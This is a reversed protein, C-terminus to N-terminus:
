VLKRILGEQTTSAVLEGNRSFIRGICYARGDGAKISEVEYLMWDEIGQDSHFWMAHDLSAIKMPTTFFSLNHPLLASVLLNFDSVYALLSRQLGKDSPIAGNPKFWLHQKPSRIGPNFPDFYELPHYIFPGRDSISGVAEIDLKKAFDSFIQSFPQLREPEVVNPMPTQHAIGEEPKHFSASMLFIVKDNQSALVRMVDFSKGIKIPEVVYKIPLDNNGPHLFYGHLSHLQKDESACITSARVSQSLVHGGYISPSGTKVNNGFFTYEGIKELDLASLLEDYLNM